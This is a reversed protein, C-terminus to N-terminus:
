SRSQRKRKKDKKTARTVYYIVRPFGVRNGQIIEDRMTYLPIQFFPFHQLSSQTEVVVVTCSFIALIVAVLFASFQQKSIQTVTFLNIEDWVNCSFILFYYERQKYVRVFYCFKNQVAISTLRHWDIYNVVVKRHNDITWRNASALRHWNVLRLRNGDISRNIKRDDIEM